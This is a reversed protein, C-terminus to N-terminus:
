GMKGLFQQLFKGVNLSWCNFNSKLKGKPSWMGPTIV